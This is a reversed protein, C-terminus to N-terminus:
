LMPEKYKQFSRDSVIKMSEADTTYAIEEGERTFSSYKM